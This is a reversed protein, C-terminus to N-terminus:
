EPYLHMSQIKWRRSFARRELFGGLNIGQVYYDPISTLLPPLAINASYISFVGKRLFPRSLWFRPGTPPCDPNIDGFFVTFWQPSIHNLIETWMCNPSYVNFNMMQRWERNRLVSIEMPARSPSYFVFSHDSLRRAPLSRMLPWRWTLNYPSEM